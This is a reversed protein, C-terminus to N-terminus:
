SSNDWIFSQNTYTVIVTDGVAPTLLDRAPIDVVVLVLAINFAPLQNSPIKSDAGLTPIGNPQGKQVTIRSDVAPDFNSIDSSTHTAANILSNVEPTFDPIDAAVHTHAGSSVANACGGQQSSVGMAISSVAM